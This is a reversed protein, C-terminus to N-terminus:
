TLFSQIRQICCTTINIPNTTIFVAPHNFDIVLWGIRMEEVLHTDGIDQSQLHRALCIDAINPESRLVQGRSWWHTEVQSKDTRLTLYSLVMVINLIKHKM